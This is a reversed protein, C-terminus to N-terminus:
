KTKRQKKNAPEGGGGGGGAKKAAAKEKQLARKQKEKAIDAKISDDKAAAKAAAAEDEAAGSSGHQAAVLRNLARLPDSFIPGFYPTLSTRWGTLEKVWQKGDLREARPTSTKSDTAAAATATSGTANSSTAISDFIKQFATEIDAFLKGFASAASEPIGDAETPLQTTVSAVLPSCLARLVSLANNHCRALCYDTARAILCHCLVVNVCM